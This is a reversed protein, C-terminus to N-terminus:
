CLSVVGQTIFPHAIPVPDAAVPRLIMALPEPAGMAVRDIASKKNAPQRGFFCITKEFGIQKVLKYTFSDVREESAAGIVDEADISRQESQACNLSPRGPRSLYAGIHATKREGVVRKIDDDGIRSQIMEARGILNSGTQAFKVAYETGASEQNDGKIVRHIRKNEKAIPKGKWKEIFDPNDGVIDSDCQRGTLQFIEKFFCSEFYNLSFGYQM